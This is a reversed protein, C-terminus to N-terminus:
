RHGYGVFGQTGYCGGKQSTCSIACFAFLLAVILMTIIVSGKM